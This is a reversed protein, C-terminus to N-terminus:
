LSLYLFFKTREGRAEKIIVLLLLTCTV